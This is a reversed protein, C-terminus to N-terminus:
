AHLLFGASIVSDRFDASDVTSGRSTYLYSFQLSADRNLFYRLTVGASPYQDVRDGGAFRSYTYAGFSQLVVDRALECDIGLRVSQDDSTTVGPLIVDSLSRAASVHVTLEPGPYWNLAAGYDLTKFDPLPPVASDPFIQQLYGVFMEGKVTRAVDVVAGAQLRYGWSSRDLELSAPHHFDRSNFIARGFLQLEGTIQYGAKIWEEGTSEDRIRNSATRIDGSRHLLSTPQWDFSDFSGGLGFRWLGPEYAIASDLHGRYYRTYNRQQLKPTVEASEFSEHYAGYYGSASARLVNDSTAVSADAGATWDTLNLQHFRAYNLTDLNGSFGIVANSTKRQVRVIPTTELFWDSPARGPLLSRFVNNDYNATAILSPLLLWDGIAIGTADYDPRSREM